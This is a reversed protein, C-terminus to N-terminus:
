RSTKEKQVDKQAQLLRHLVSARYQPWYSNANRKADIVNRRQPMRNEIINREAAIRKTIGFTTLGNEILASMSKDQKVVTYDVVFKSKAEM